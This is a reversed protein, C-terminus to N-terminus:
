KGGGGGGGGDAPGPTGIGGEATNGGAAGVAASGEGTSGVSDGGVSGDVGVGSGDGMADIAAQIGTTTGDDVPAQVGQAADNAFGFGLGMAAGVPGLLGGIAAAQGPTMGGIAGPTSNVGSDGGGPGPTGIGTGSIGGVGSGNGGAGAGGMGGPDLLGGGPLVSPTPMGRNPITFLSPRYIQPTYPTPQYAGISAFRGLGSNAYPSGMGYGQARGATLNQPISANGQPGGSM